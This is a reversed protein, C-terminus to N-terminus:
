SIDYYAANAEGSRAELTYYCELLKKEASTSTSIDTTHIKQGGGTAMAWSSMDLIYLQNPLMQKNPVVAIPGFQSVYVAVRAYIEGTKADSNVDDAIGSLGNRLSAVSAASAMVKVNSFDGANNWIGDLLNDFKTQDITDNTGLTPVETGDAQTVGATGGSAGINATGDGGFAQNISIWSAVTASVGAASTSPANKDDISLMQAEVDMQLEKGRKMLQYAMEKGPVGARDFMEAKKTVTAVEQAIQVYNGLRSRNGNTADGIANAEIAANSTVATRYSDTLWEHNDNTARTQAIGSTFPTQFPSVNFIVNGLDERINNAGELVAASTGAITAM